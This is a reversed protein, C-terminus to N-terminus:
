RLEKLGSEVVALAEELQETEIVLPPLFRIANGYTGASLMIVGREFCHKILQKAADPHPEKSSKDKVLEIALMPGLGRVDGVVPYREAFGALRARLQEGMKKAHTLIKGDEFLKFVALAAACAVPNGNYTGGIGGELPADMIEARGTVAAIPMGGGMGKATTILDPAIGSHECAFMTGTRGFGSQIEDAILVIKNATCYDRVRQLFEKPAPVFGGEGLVPELIVAATQTPGIQTNIVDAFREYAEDASVGRYPYPFPVRYVEPNFPGFGQRYPKVKSTLSMAMYTRGHFAHDFCVIAQRGTYARAIKIANEVAEAGTTVLFTKKAFTGPTAENLKQALRLYGEYPTVNFSLHLTQDAQAHIAQVVDSAMHGVNLVGIGSALDIFTNGDIDDLLAGRARNVFVPTGHFPGRPVAAQREAFLAQSKPGPIRTKLQISGM